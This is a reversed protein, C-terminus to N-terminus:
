LGPRALAHGFSTHCHLLVSAFGPKVSDLLLNLGGAFSASFGGFIWRRLATQGSTHFSIRGRRPNSASPNTNITILLNAPNTSGYEEFNRISLTTPLPWVPNSHRSTM